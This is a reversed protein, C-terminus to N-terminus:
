LGVTYNKRVRCVKERRKEREEEREEVRGTVARCLM